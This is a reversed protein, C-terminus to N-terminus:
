EEQMFELLPAATKIRQEAIKYYDLEKEIGIFAFGEDKAAIGTSGAGM